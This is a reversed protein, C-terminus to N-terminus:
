YDILINRLRRQARMGSTLFFKYMRYQHLSNKANADDVVVNDVEKHEHERRQVFM